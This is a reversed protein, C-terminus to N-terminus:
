ARPAAARRPHRGLARHRSRDAPLVTRPGRRAAGALPRRRAPTSSSSTWCRITSPRSSSSLLLEPLQQPPPGPQVAPDGAPLVALAPRALPLGRQAARASPASRSKVSGSRAPKGGSSGPAARSAWCIGCSMGCPRPASFSLAAGAPGLHRAGAPRAPKRARSLDGHPRPPAAAVAPETSTEPGHYRSSFGLEEVVPGHRRSVGTTRRATIENM